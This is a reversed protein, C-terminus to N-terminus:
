HPHFRSPHLSGETQHVHYIDDKHNKRSFRKRTTSTGLLQYQSYCIEAAEEALSSWSVFNAVTIPIGQAQLKTGIEDLGLSFVNMLGRLLYVRADMAPATAKANCPVFPLCLLLAVLSAQIGRLSLRHFYIRGSYGIYPKM